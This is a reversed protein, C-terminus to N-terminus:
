WGYNTTLFNSQDDVEKQTRPNFRELSLRPNQGECLFCPPSLSNSKNPIAMVYLDIEKKPSTMMFYRCHADSVVYIILCNISKNDGDKTSIWVKPFINKQFCTDIYSILESSDELVHMDNGYGKIIRHIYLNNFPLPTQFTRNM